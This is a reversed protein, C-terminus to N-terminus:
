RKLCVATLDLEPRLVVCGVRASVLTKTTEFGVAAVPAADRALQVDLAGYARYRAAGRLRAARRLLRNYKPSDFRSVNSNAPLAGPAPIWRGDFQVNLFPYPDLYDPAAFAFAIDWPEGRTRLREALAAPPIPKVDVDLGIKALDRKVLQALLIAPPNARTYLVAKASRRHGRALANAKRVDPRFPYIKADRFGPLSPPLYQDTLHTALPGGLAELQAARDIAFNVARRLRPNNRFLPSSTNLVYQRFILGPKVFFRGGRRNVGYKGVLGRAPDLIVAPPAGFTWDAQGREVQDLAAERSPATLDVVYGDVHHPRSGGYYRNRRLVIRQGPRFESVYYPGAAPFATVGEPDVPLTPPVACLFPMTTRAPFDPVPRTFRVVLRYGRAVVGKANTSKGALVDEAGAIDRVYEAAPSKMAPALARHIARAFASARVPAGNSFRFGKRLTFTFTKFDRSARPYRAAVEPVLRLGAPPPRDPYTMLKACTTDVVAATASAGSSTLAPDASGFLPAWLSVRFIGGDRIQPRSVDPSAQALAAVVVAVAAAVAILSLGVGRRM